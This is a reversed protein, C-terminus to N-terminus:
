DSIGVKIKMEYYVQDIGVRKMMDVELMSRLVSRLSDYPFEAIREDIVKQLKKRIINYSIKLLSNKAVYDYGNKLMAKIYVDFNKGFINLNSIDCKCAKLLCLGISFLDSKFPDYILYGLDYSLRCWTMLEPSLFPKTVWRGPTKKIFQGKNLKISKYCDNFDCIKVDEPSKVLINYPSIDYHVINQDNLFFYAKIINYFMINMDREGLKQNQNMFVELNCNCYEMGIILIKKYASKVSYYYISPFSNYKKSLEKLIKIESLTKYYKKWLFDAERTKKKYDKVEAFANASKNQRKINRYINPFIVSLQFLPVIRKTEPESVIDKKSNSPNTVIKQCSKLKEVNRIYYNLDLNESDSCVLFRRYLNRQPKLKPIKEMMKIRKEYFESSQNRDFEYFLHGINDYLFVLCEKYDGIDTELIKKSKEYYKLAKRKDNTEAYIRGLIVYVVGVLKPDANPIKNLIMKSEKFLKLAKMKQNMLAYYLGCACFFSVSDCNKKRLKIFINESKELYNISKEYNGSNYSLIGLNLYLLAVKPNILKLIKFANKSKTYYKFAKKIYNEQYYVSGLNLYLTGLVHYDPNTNKECIIKCKEYYELAEKPNKLLLNLNGLNIYITELNQNYSYPMKECIAKAKKSYNISKEINNKLIYINSLNLYITILQSDDPKLNKEYIKRCKEYYELSKDKNNIYQTIGSDKLPHCKSKRDKVSLGSGVDIRLGNIGLQLNKEPDRASQSFHMNNMNYYLMGLNGYLVGLNIDNSNCTKELIMRSKELFKLAESNNKEEIHM